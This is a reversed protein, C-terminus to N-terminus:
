SGLHNRYGGRQNSGKTRKPTNLEDKASQIYNLENVIEADERSNPSKDDITYVNRESASSLIRKLLLKWISISKKSTELIQKDGLKAIYDVPLTPETFLQEGRLGNIYYRMKDRQLVVKQAAHSAVTCSMRACFRSGGIVGQCINDM